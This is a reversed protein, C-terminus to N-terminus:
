AAYYITFETAEATPRVARNEHNLKVIGYRELTKLTRSLNSVQRGSLEALEKISEPRQEDILKLLRVNNESLIESLSKISSFWIRPEGKGPKYRGAAIDLTRKQFEERPLIGIKM